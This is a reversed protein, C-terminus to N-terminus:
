PHEHIFAPATARRPLSFKNTGGIESCMLAGDAGPRLEWRSAFVSWIWIGNTKEYYGWWSHDGDSLHFHTVHGGSFLFIHNTPQSVILSNADYFGSPEWNQLPGSHQNDRCGAVVLLVVLCLIQRM